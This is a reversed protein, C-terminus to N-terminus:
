LQCHQMGYVQGHALIWRVGQVPPKQLLSTFVLKEFTFLYVINNIEKAIISKQCCFRMSSAAQSAFHTTFDM